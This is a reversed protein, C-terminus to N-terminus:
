ARSRFAIKFRSFMSGIGTIWLVRVSLLLDAAGSGILRLERENGTIGSLRDESEANYQQFMSAPLPALYPTM